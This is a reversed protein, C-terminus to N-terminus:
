PCVGRRLGSAAVGVTVAVEDVGETARAVEDTEVDGRLCFNPDLFVEDFVEAARRMFWTGAVPSSASTSRAVRGPVGPASLCEPRKRPGSSLVPALDHAGARAQSGQCRREDMRRHGLDALDVITGRPAGPGGPRALICPPCHGADVSPCIKSPRRGYELFSVFPM